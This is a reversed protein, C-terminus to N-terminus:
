SSSLQAALAAEMENQLARSIDGEYSGEPRLSTMYEGLSVLSWGNKRHREVFDKDLELMRLSIPSTRTANSVRTMKLSFLLSDEQVQKVRKRVEERYTLIRRSLIWVFLLGLVGPVITKSGILVYSSVLSSRTSCEDM